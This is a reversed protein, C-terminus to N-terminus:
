KSVVSCSYKSTVSGTSAIFSPSKFMKYIFQNIFSLYDINLTTEYKCKFPSCSRPCVSWIRKCPSWRVGVWSGWAFTRFEKWFSGGRCFAIGVPRCVSLLLRRGSNWPLRNQHFNMFRDIRTWINLGNVTCCSLRLILSFIKCSESLPSFNTSRFFNTSSWWSRDRTYNMNLSFFRWRFSFWCPLCFYIKFTHSRDCRLRQHRRTRWFRNSPRPNYPTSTYYPSEWWFVVRNEIPLRHDRQSLYQLHFQDASLTWLGLSFLFLALSRADFKPHHIEFPLLLLIAFHM